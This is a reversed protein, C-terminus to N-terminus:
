GKRKKLKRPRGIRTGEPVNIEIHPVGYGEDGVHAQLAKISQDYLLWSVTADTGIFKDVTGHTAGLLTTIHRLEEFTLVLTFTTPPAVVPEPKNITIDM